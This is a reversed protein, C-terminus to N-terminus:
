PLSVQRMRSKGNTSPAEFARGVEAAVVPVLENAIIGAMTQAGRDTFHVFEVFYEPGPPMKEAVDILPLGQEAAVERIAENMRHEMDLFGDEKLMPYFKRWAVLIPREEPKVSKGFRTAHTMLFTEVGRAKLGKALQTLDSKFRAVNEEPVRDLTNTPASARRIQWARLETQVSEPVVQKAITELRTKMRLEFGPEPPRPNKGSPPRLARLDIYAAVSPYITVVRPEVTGLIEPLRRLTASLSMGPYAVNVVQVEERGIRRNLEQELRRPYEGDEEEYLGFTESAGICMVRTRDYRLDPGRYGLSNLKWKLYTAGPKGRVGLDDYMYIRSLNYPGLIPAGYSIWDDVRACIELTIGGIVLWIAIRIALRKGKM